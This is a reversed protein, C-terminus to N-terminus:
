FKAIEVVIMKLDRIKAPELYIDKGFKNSQPKDKTAKRIENHKDLLPKIDIEYFLETDTLDTLKPEGKFLLSSELLVNEDPDAILVQVMRKSMIIEKKNSKDVKPWLGIEQTYKNDQWTSSNDTVGYANYVYNATAMTPTTLVEGVM